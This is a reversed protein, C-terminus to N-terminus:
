LNAIFIEHPEDMCARIEEYTKPRILSRQIDHFYRVLSADLEVLGKLSCKGFVSFMNRVDDNNQFKM